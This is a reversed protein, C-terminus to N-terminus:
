FRGMLFVFRRRKGRKMIESFEVGELAKTVDARDRVDGEVLCFNDMGFHQGLSERNGSSFDGLVVMDFGESVM